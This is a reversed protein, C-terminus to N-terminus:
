TDIPNPMNKLMFFPQLSNFSLADPNPNLAMPIKLVMTFAPLGHKGFM